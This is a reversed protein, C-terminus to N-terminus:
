ERAEQLAEIQEELRDLRESNDNALLEAQYSRDALENGVKYLNVALMGVFLAFSIFTAWAVVPFFRYKELSMEGHTKMYECGLM